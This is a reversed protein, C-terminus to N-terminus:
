NGEEYLGEIFRNIFKVVGFFGSIVLVLYVFVVDISKVVVPTFSFVGFHLMKSIYPLVTIFCGFAIFLGLLFGISVVIIGEVIYPIKIDLSDGGLLEILEIEERRNNNLNLGITNSLIYFSSICVIFIIIGKFYISYEKFKFSLIILDLNVRMEQFAINQSLQMKLREFDEREMYRSFKLEFLPPLLREPKLDAVEASLGFANKLEEYAHTPSIYRYREIGKQKSVIEEVGKIDELTASDKLVIVASNESVLRDVFEIANEIVFLILISFFSVVAVNVISSFNNYKNRLFNLVARKLFFSIRM